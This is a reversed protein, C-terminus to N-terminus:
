GGRDVERLAIHQAIATVRNSLITLQCSFYILVLFIGILALLTVASVPFIAGVAVTLYRLLPPVVLLLGGAALCVLWMAAYGVYLRGKLTLRVVFAILGLVGALAVLTGHPTM